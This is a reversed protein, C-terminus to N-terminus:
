SACCASGFQQRHQSLVSRGSDARRAVFMEGFGPVALEGSADLAGAILRQLVDRWKSQTAASKLENKKIKREFVSVADDAFRM